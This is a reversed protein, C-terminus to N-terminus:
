NNKLRKCNVKKRNKTAKFTVPQGLVPVNKFVKFRYIKVTVTDNNVESVTGSIIKSNICSQTTTMLIIIIIILTLGTLFFREGKPQDNITKM